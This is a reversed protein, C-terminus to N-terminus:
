AISTGNMRCSALAQQAAAQKADSKSLGVGTGKLEGKVKCQITWTTQHSPGSSTEAWTLFQAEQKDQLDTFDDTTSLHLMTLWAQKNNRLPLLLPYLSQLLSDWREHINGKQLREEYGIAM